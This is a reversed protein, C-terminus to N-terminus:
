RAVSRVIRRSALIGVLELTVAGPILVTRGLPGSLTAALGPMTAILYLALAPVLAALLYMQSRVGASRARIEADLTVEHTARQAVAELLAAAREVPLREAVGLALTHLADTARRDRSSGAAVRLAADLPDGLDFHRIADEFPRRALPDSCSHLARRLAEPLALGSRLGAHTGVLLRPLEGRARERAWQARLRVALSPATGFILGLPALGILALALVAFGTTAIRVGEWSRVTVHWGADRLATADPHAPWRPRWADAHPLLALAMLATVIALAGVAASM